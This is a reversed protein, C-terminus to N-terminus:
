QRPGRVPVGDAEYDLIQDQQDKTLSNFYKVTGFEIIHFDRKVYNCISLTRQQGDLVEFTARSEDEPADPDPNVAWYMVNLPYGKRVTDIVSNRQADKYVFERQYAPRIDLRGGFGVVGADGSDKFGECLDRVKIQKRTIKM